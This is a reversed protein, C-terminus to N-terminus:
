ILTHRTTHGIVRALLLWVATSHVVLVPFTGCPQPPKCVYMYDGALPKLIHQDWAVVWESELTQAPQVGFIHCLAVWSTLCHILSITDAQADTM